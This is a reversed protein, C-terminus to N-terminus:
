RLERVSPPPRAVKPSAELLEHGIRGGNSGANEEQALQPAAADRSPASSPKLPKEKKTPANTREAMTPEDNGSIASAKGDEKCTFSPALPLKADRPAQPGARSTTM